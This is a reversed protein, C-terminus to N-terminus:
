RVREWETASYAVKLGDAFYAIDSHIEADEDFCIDIRDFLSGQRLLTLGWVALGGKGYKAEILTGDDFILLVGHESDDTGYCGVEGDVDGEFEILDDSQGYVKTM